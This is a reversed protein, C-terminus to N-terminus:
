ARTPCNTQQTDVAGVTIADPANGPSTIGAYGPVHTTVDGGFNGASVVVAIGAGVAREVAQVLPDSAAPEYIPHGLSLNIVDIRLQSRNAVAFNIAAIVDSTYGNGNRDLVKLAIYKCEPALGAYQSKSMDGGSGILGSVHTGHGYDDYPGVKKGGQTFDYLTVDNLEGNPTLGSDILAVGIDKGTYPVARVYTGDPRQALLGETGLLVNASLFKTDSSRVLADLSVRVVDHSSAITRLKAVMLDASFLDPSLTSFTHGTGLANVRAQVTAAAGHRTRILVRVRSTPSSMTADALAKDIKVKWSTRDHLSAFTLGALVVCITLLRFVSKM